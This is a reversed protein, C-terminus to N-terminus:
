RRRFRSRKHYLQETFGGETLFSQELTKIQRALLYTAASLGAIWKLRHVSDKVNVSM